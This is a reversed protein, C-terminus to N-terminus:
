LVSLKKIKKIGPGSVHVIYTGSAINKPIWEFLGVPESEKSDQWVLEGTLTFIKCVFIGRATGEFYINAKDGRQPNITGRGETSGIILLDGTRLKEMFKESSVGIGTFNIDDINTLVSTLNYNSPTFTYGNKAAVVQVNGSQPCSLFTYYGNDRTMISSSVDGTICISASEIGNGNNDKVYGSITYNKVGVTGIFIVNDIDGNISLISCSSPSFSYGAKSVSIVYNSNRTCFFSFAGDDETIVTDSPSGSLTLTVSSIGDGNVDKVYGKVECINPDRSCIFDWNDINGALSTTTRNSPSFVYAKKTPKVTLGLNRPYWFNYLGNTGTIM